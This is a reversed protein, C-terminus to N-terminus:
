SLRRCPYKYWFQQIELDQKYALWPQQSTITATHDEIDIPCTLMPITKRYIPFERHHKYLVWDIRIPQDVSLWPFQLCIPKYQFDILLCNQVNVHGIWIQVVETSGLEMGSLLSKKMEKTKGGWVLGSHYSFILRKGLNSAPFLFIYRTALVHVSWSFKPPRLKWSRLRASHYMYYALVTITSKLNHQNLVQFPCPYLPIGLHEAARLLPAVVGSHFCVAAM